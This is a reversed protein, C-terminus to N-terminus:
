HGVGRGTPWGEGEPLPSPPSPPVGANPIMQIRGQIPKASPSKVKPYDPVVARFVATSAANGWALDFRPQYADIGCQRLHDLKSNRNALLCEKRRPM